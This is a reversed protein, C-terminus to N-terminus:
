SEIDELVIRTAREKCREYTIPDIAMWQRNDDRILGANKLADCCSKQYATDPDGGRQRPGLVITISVRRKGVARPIGANHAAIKVTADDAKRLRGRVAWHVNLLVNLRTPHWRAVVLTYIAM